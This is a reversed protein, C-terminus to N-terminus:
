RRRRAAPRRAPAAPKKQTILVGDSMTMMFPEKEFSVPTGQVAQDAGVKPMINAPIPGAMEVVVNIRNEQIAEATGALRLNTKDAEVVRGSFAVKGLAKIQTWVGDAVTPEAYRLIFEWEDMAMDKVPKSKAMEAAADAKSYAEINFGQPPMPATRTQALLQTWGQEKGPGAHRRYMATGYKEVGARAQAPALNVARAIFWLGQVMAPNAPPETAGPQAQPEPQSLYALALQYNELFDNPNNQVAARLHQQAVDWQKAQLAAFGV